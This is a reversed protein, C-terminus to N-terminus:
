RLNFFYRKGEAGKANEATFYSEDNAEFKSGGTNQGIIADVVSTNM